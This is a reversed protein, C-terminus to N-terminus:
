ITYERKEYHPRQTRPPKFNIQQKRRKEPPSISLAEQWQIKAEESLPQRLIAWLNGVTATSPLDDKFKLNGLPLLELPHVLAEKVPTSIVAAVDLEWALSRLQTAVVGADIYSRIFYSPFPAKQKFHLLFLHERGFHIGFTLVPAPISKAPAFGALIETVKRALNLASEAPNAVPELMGFM